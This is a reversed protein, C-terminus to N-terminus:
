VYWAVNRSMNHQLGNRDGRVTDSCDYNKIYITKYQSTSLVICTLKTFDQQLCLWQWWGNHLLKSLVLCRDQLFRFMIFTQTSEDHIVFLQGRSTSGLFITGQRSRQLDKGFSDSTHYRLKEVIPRLNRSIGKGREDDINHGVKFPSLIFGSLTGEAQGEPDRQYTYQFLRKTWYQWFMREHRNHRQIMSRLINNEWVFCLGALDRRVWCFLPTEETAGRTKRNLFCCERSSSGHWKCSWLAM